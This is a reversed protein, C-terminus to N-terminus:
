QKQQHTTENKEEVKANIDMKALKVGVMNADVNGGSAKNGCCPPYPPYAPYAPYQPYLHSRNEGDKGDDSEGIEVEATDGEKDENDSESSYDNEKDEDGDNEHYDEDDYDYDEGSSYEEDSMASVAVSVVIQAHSKM